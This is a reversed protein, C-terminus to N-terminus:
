RFLRRRMNNGAKENNKERQMRVMRIEMEHQIKRRLWSGKGGGNGRGKTMREEEASNKDEDANTKRKTNKRKGNEEM